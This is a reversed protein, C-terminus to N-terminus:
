ALSLARLGPLERGELFELSAGGGTSIHSVKQALGFANMAAASDGGGVVTFGACAAVAEAVARTGGSFPEWEFVGMPGNWFVTAASTIEERFRARTESGIDLAMWGEPIDPVAYQIAAANEDFSRAAVIDSPLVIPVDASAAAGLTRRVHEMSDEEVRSAGVTQGSAALYTNAMAGGILIVDCRTLLNDVVGIKDAVKAGGLVLVFPREAGELLRGLVEVEKELLLGAARPLRRAVAVVSAHARHVAGFADNVYVEALSALRGAFGQDNAEEGPDFRLNELLAVQGPQLDRLEEAPGDPASTMRVEVGIAKGLADGVLRMSLAPDRKGKPRGLHSCCIM